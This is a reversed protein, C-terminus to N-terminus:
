SAGEPWPTGVVVDDVCVSGAAAGTTRVEVPGQRGTVVFTAQGIGAPVALEEEQGGVTLHVTAPQGTMYTLQLIQPDTAGGPLHGIRQWAGTLPWGCSASPGSREFRPVLIVVPRLEGEGYFMLVETGAEEFRRPQGVARLLAEVDFYTAMVVDDPLRTSLVLAGPHEDLARVVAEVYAQSDRHQLEGALAAGSVLGSVSLAAVALGAMASRVPRSLRIPTRRAVLPGTFAACVGIAVVPLADTVYRPDRAVIHLFDGRGILMLGVDMAVYGGGLLWGQLARAGRLWVSLLVLGAFLALVLLVPGTGLDPFRTNEAGSGTWPGGVLGPLLMRAVTEGSRSVLTGADPLPVAPPDAVAAYLPVYAAVLLVHPVLHPWSRLLLRVRDRLPRGAWEVLVLVALLLPLVLLAKQWFFLGTATGAVSVAAWRWSRVRVGRVLGLVATLAAIQMPLAQLGAAWWTAAPLALPTFLYGAFPVLVWPSRGSLTRLVALLLCSAVVQMGILTLAAPLFSGGADRGILWYVLNTGMELHGNHDKVLFERSLGLRGAAEMHVFDDQWYYSPLVVLARAVTQAAILLLGALLVPEPRRDRARTGEPVAGVM